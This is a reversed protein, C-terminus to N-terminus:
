SFLVSFAIWEAFFAIVGVILLWFAIADLKRAAVDNLKVITLAMFHSFIAMFIFFIDIFMWWQEKRITFTLIISIICLVLAGATAAKSQLLSKM